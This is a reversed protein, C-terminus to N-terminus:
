ELLTLDFDNIYAMEEDLRDDSHKAEFSLVIEPDQMMVYAYFAKLKNLKQKKKRRVHRQRVAECEKNKVMIFLNTDILWGNPGNEFIDIRRQQIPNSGHM